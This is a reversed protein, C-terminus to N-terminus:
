WRNAISLYRDGRDPAITVVRYGRKLLKRAAFFNAGASMGTSIGRERWLYKMSNMADGTKVTIIEDILDMHKEVIPTIEGRGIGQIGHKGPNKGYIVASEEPEVGVIRVDMGADSFAKAIGILTGGTGIGAVFADIKGFDRIIEPGTGKRHAEINDESEFQRPFWRNKRDKMMNELIEKAGKSGKEAPSLIINAGYSRMMARREESMSEPMVATFSYGRLSSLMALSIGTNGSTAEVIEMGKRLEGRSEAMKMMYWAARDKISGTPNYGELKIGINDVYVYPTNGIFDYPWIKDVFDGRDPNLLM